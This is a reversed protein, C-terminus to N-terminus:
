RGRIKSTIEVEDNKVVEGNIFWLTEKDFLVKTFIIQKDKLLKEALEALSYAQCQYFHTKSDYLYFQNTTQEVYMSGLSELVQETSLSSARNSFYIYMSVCVTVFMLLGLFEM